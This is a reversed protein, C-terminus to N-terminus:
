LKKAHKLFVLDRKQVFSGEYDKPKDNKVKAIAEDLTAWELKFGQASEKKTFNTQGKSKIKGIYCYSTQKLNWESRFEITKGLEGTVEIQSGAEELVERSLAQLLDESPKVGGGPLKHYNLKSVFLLPIMGNDDFAIIRSAERIKLLSEDNPFENDKITKLLKMKNKNKISVM